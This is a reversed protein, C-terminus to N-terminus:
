IRPTVFAPFEGEHQKILEYLRDSRLGDRLDHAVLTELSQRQRWLGGFVDETAIEGGLYEELPFIDPALAPDPRHQNHILVLHKLTSPLSLLDALVRFDVECESLHLTRLDTSGVHAAPDRVGLESTIVAHRLFIERLQPVFFLMGLGRPSQPKGEPSQAHQGIAIDVSRLNQFMREQPPVLVSARQLLAQFERNIVQSGNGKGAIKLQKLGSIGELYRVAALPCGEDEDDHRCHNRNEIHVVRVHRAYNTLLGLKQQVSQQNILCDPM